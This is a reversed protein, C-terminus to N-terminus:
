WLSVSCVFGLSPLSIPAESIPFGAPRDKWGATVRFQLFDLIAVPM